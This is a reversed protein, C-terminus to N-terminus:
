FKLIETATADTILRGKLDALAATDYGTLKAKFVEGGTILRALTTDSSDAFQDTTIDEFLIGIATNLGSSAGDDYAAYFGTVSNRAMLTGAKVTSASYSMRIPQLTALHRNQAIIIPHDKRFIETDVNADLKGM